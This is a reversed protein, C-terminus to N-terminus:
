SPTVSTKLFHKEIEECNKKAIDVTPSWGLSNTMHRQTFNGWAFTRDDSVSYVRGMKGKASWYIGSKKWELVKAAM